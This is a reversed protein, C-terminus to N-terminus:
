YVLIFNDNSHVPVVSRSLSVKLVPVAVGGCDTQHILSVSPLAPIRTGPPHLSVAHAKMTHGLVPHLRLSCFEKERSNEM